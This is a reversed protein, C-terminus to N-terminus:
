LKSMEIFADAQKRIVLVNEEVEKISKRFQIMQSEFVDFVDERVIEIQGCVEKKMMTIYKEAKKELVIEVEAIREDTELRMMDLQTQRSAVDGDEGNNLIRERKKGGKKSFLALEVNSETLKKKKKEGDDEENFDEDDTNWSM